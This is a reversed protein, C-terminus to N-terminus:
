QIKVLVDRGWGKIGIPQLSDFKGQWGMSPSSPPFYELEDEMGSHFLPPFLSHWIQSQGGGGGGFGCELPISSLLLFIEGERM